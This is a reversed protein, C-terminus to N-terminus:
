KELKETLEKMEAILRIGTNGFEKTPIVRKHNDVWRILKENDFLYHQELITTKKPDYAETDNNEAAMKKTYYIPRNYQYDRDLQFILKGKDFYYYIEKKGTEGGWVVHFMKLTDKKYYATGNAGEEEEDWQISKKQYSALHSEINNRTKLIKHINQEQTQAKIFSTFFIFIITIALTAKKM